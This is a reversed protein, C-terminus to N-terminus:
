SGNTLTPCFVIAPSVSNALFYSISCGFFLKLITDSLFVLIIRGLAIVNIPTQIPKVDILNAKSPLNASATTAINNAPKISANSPLIALNILPVESNPFSNSEKVSKIVQSKGYSSTEGNSSKDKNYDWYKLIDNCIRKSMYWGGIQTTTDFEIYDNDLNRLLSKFSNIPDSKWIEMLKFVIADSNLKKQEMM